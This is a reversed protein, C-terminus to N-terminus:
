YIRGERELRMRGIVERNYVRVIVRLDPGTLDDGAVLELRDLLENMFERRWRPLGLDERVHVVRAQLRERRQIREREEISM